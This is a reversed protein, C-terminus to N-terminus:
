NNNGNEEPSNGFYVKTHPWPIEIGVEDFRNKIRRRLEGTLSFHQGPDTDGRIVIDVSSDGLSAVRLVAPTTKLKDGWQPDEKLEQCVENAVEFVRDLNEKYAVGVTLNIRNWDRTRNSSSSIQSNPINHITGDVERLVTRRLTLQEVTGEAGSAGVWEGVRYWDEMLIFFGNIYDRIINQAAFGLALAGVGLGALLPGINVGLQGLVMTISLVWIIISFVRVLAESITKAREGQTNSSEKRFQPMRASIARPILWRGIIVLAITALLIIGIQVASNVIASIGFNFDFNTM